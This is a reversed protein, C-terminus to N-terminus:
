YAAEPAPETAMVCGDATVDLRLAAAEELSVLRAPVYRTSGCRPCDGGVLNPPQVHAHRLDALAILRHCSCVISITM